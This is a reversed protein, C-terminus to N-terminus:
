VMRNGKEWMVDCHKRAAATLLEIVPFARQGPRIAPPANGNEGEPQNRNKANEPEAAALAQQLRALAAPVDDALVAGPVAGSHGMMKLIKEAEEGFMTVSNWADSNFTVFM